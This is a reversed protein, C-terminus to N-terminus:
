KKRNFIADKITKLHDVIEQKQEEARDASSQKNQERQAAKKAEAEANYKAALGDIYEETASVAEEEKAKGSLKNAIVELPSDVLEVFTGKVEKLKALKEVFAFDMKLSATFLEVYREIFVRLLEIIIQIVLSVASVILLVKNFDSAGVQTMQYISVGLSAANVIYRFVRVIRKFGKTKKGKEKKYTVLYTVFNIIATVALLSYIVLYVTSNVNAYISYGYFVFFICNVIITAVLLITNIDSILQKAVAITRNCFAM